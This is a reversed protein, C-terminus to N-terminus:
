SGSRQSEIEVVDLTRFLRPMVLVLMDAQTQPRHDSPVGLFKHRLLVPRTCQDPHLDESGETRNIITLMDTVVMLWQVFLFAQRGAKFLVVTSGRKTGPVIKGLYLFTVLKSEQRLDLM